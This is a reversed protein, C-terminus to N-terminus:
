SLHYCIIVSYAGCVGFYVLFFKSVSESQPNMVSPVMTADIHVNLWIVSCGAGIIRIHINRGVIADNVYM